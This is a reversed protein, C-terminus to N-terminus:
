GIYLPYNGSSTQPYLTYTKCKILHLCRTISFLNTTIKFEKAFSPRHFKTYFNAVVLPAYLYLKNPEIKQEKEIADKFDQNKKILLYYFNNGDVNITKDKVTKLMIINKNELQKIYNIVSTISLPEYFDYIKKGINEYKRTKRDYLQLALENKINVNTEIFFGRKIPEEVNNYLLEVQKSFISIIKGDYYKHNMYVHLENNDYFQYCIETSFPTKRNTKTIKINYIHSWKNIAQTFNNYNMDFKLEFVLHIINFSNIIKFIDM